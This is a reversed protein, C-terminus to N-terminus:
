YLPLKKKGTDLIRRITALLETQEFPKKVFADVSGDKMIVSDSFGSIALIRIEPNINKLIKILDNGEVLPMVIDTIVLNIKTVNAKFMDVASLANNVPM